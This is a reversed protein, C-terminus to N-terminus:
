EDTVPAGGFRALTDSQEFSISRPLGESLHLRGVLRYRFEGEDRLWALQRVLDLVTTSAIVSTQAEGLAPLVFSQNSVGRALRAGNIDLKFDLGRVAIEEDNPNQIRVDVQLRQEFVTAELPTVDTVFVEPRELSRCGLMFSLTVLVGPLRWRM